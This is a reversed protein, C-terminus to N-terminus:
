AERAINSRSSPLVPRTCRAARMISSYGTRSSVGSTTWTRAPVMELVREAHEGAEDIVDAGVVIGVQHEGPWVHGGDGVVGLAGPHERLDVGSPACQRPLRAAAHVKCQQRHLVGVFVGDDDVREM